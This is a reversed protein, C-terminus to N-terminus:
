LSHGFPAVHLFGPDHTAHAGRYSAVPAGQAGYPRVVQAGHCERGEHLSGTDLGTLHFVDIEPASVLGALVVAVTAPAVTFRSHPDPRSATAWAARETM